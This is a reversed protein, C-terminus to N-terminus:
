ASPPTLRLLRHGEQISLVLVVQDRVQYIVRDTGVLVERLDHREYEPVVRGSWPLDRVARVRQRIRAIHTRAAVPNDQAIYVAIDKLDSLAEDSYAVNM